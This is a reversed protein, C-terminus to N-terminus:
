FESFENVEATVEQEQELIVANTSKEEESEKDIMAAIRTRTDIDSKNTASFFIKRYFPRGNRLIVEGSDRDVVQQKQEKNKLFDEKASESLSAMYQEDNSTIIPESALVRYLVANPMTALKAEADAVTYDKPVDAWCVRTETYSDAPLKYEAIPAFADQMNNSVQASQYDSVVEQRLEAQALNKKFAHPKVSVVTIEGFSKAM